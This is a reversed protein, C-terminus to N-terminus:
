KRTDEVRFPISQIGISGKKVWLRVMTITDGEPTALNPLEEAFGIDEAAFEYLLSATSYPDVVLVVKDTEFRHRHPSGSFAVHTQRLSRPDKPPNYAQIEFRKSEQPFGPGAM